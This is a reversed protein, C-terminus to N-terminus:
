ESDTNNPDGSGTVAKRLLYEYARKIKDTDGDVFDWDKWYILKYKEGLKRRDEANPLFEGDYDFRDDQRRKLEISGELCDRLVAMLEERVLNRIEYQLQKDM